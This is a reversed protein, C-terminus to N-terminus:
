AGANARILSSRAIAPNRTAAADISSAFTREPEDRSSLPTTVELSIATRVSLSPRSCAPSPAAPLCSKGPLSSATAMRSFIIRMRRKSSRAPSIYALAFIPPNRWRHM